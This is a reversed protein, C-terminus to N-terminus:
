KILSSKIIGYMSKSLREIAKENREISAKIQKQFREADATKAKIGAIMLKTGDKAKQIDVETIAIQPTTSKRVRAYKSSPINYYQRLLNAEAQSAAKLATQYLQWKVRDKSLESPTVNGSMVQEWISLVEPSLDTAYAGLNDNVANHIDSRIFNETLAKNDEAKQRAEYELQQALTDWINYKSSLYAQDLKSKNLNTVWLQARNFMATDHRNAANEKEQQWALEDYQRQVQNSQEMGANRAEQGKVEADLQTATQLSGDSTLPKSALSRLTAYNREGRMEADLDSRTYRHVQFPDKLYPTLSEKALDTIRRNMSDAYIARPLGYILTPNRLFNFNIKETPSTSPSQTSGDRPNIIEKQSTNQIVPKQPQQAVSNNLVAIDGNAKKYVQYQKGDSLTVTHIRSKQEEPTLQNFEKEYTDMRRLWTSSGMTDEVDSNITGPNFRNVIDQYMKDQYGINYANNSNDSRSAFMKRFLQNHGRVGQDGYTHEQNWFDRIKAADRNYNAVFQNIDTTMQSDDYYAQIDSGVINSNGIYSNNKNYAEQLNGAKYHGANSNTISPAAYQQGLSNNWGTLAQQSYLNSYWTPVNGGPALKRIKNLNLSGGQRFGYLKRFKDRSVAGFSKDYLIDVDKNVPMPFLQDYLSQLEKNKARQEGKQSKPIPKPAPKPTKPKEGFLREYMKQRASHAAGTTVPKYEPVGYLNFAKEVNRLASEEQARQGVRARASNIKEQIAKSAREINEQPRVIAPLNSSFTNRDVTPVARSLAVATRVKKSDIGEFSSNGTPVGLKAQRAKEGQTFTDDIKEIDSLKKKSIEARQRQFAADGKSIIEDRYTFPKQTIPVLAKIDQSQKQTYKSYPNRFNLHLSINGLNSTKTAEFIDADSLLQWKKKKGFTTDRLKSFDYYDAVKPNHDWIRSFKWRSKFYSPLTKDKYEPISQLIKNAEELNKANKIQELKDASIKIMKGTSDEILKEGTKTASKMAMNKLRIGTQNSLSTVATVGASLNRLDDVTLDNFKGDLIKKWSARSPESLANQAQLVGLIYPAFKILNKGIKAAKGATGLGPVLGILDMGLGVGANSLDKWQFGDEGIDAGLTALTSGIGSIGSVITGGVPVFSSIASTLDLAIAGLRAWDTASLGDSLKRQGAQKEEETRGFLQDAMRGSTNKDQQKRQRAAAVYENFSGGSQKKVIGGDKQSTIQKNRKNWEPYAMRQRLEENLLMSADRYQRTVPNYELFTWNDYNQSGPIVYYGDASGLETFLGTDYAFDLNNAIHQQTIDKSNKDVLRRSGTIYQVLTPFDIYQKIAERLAVPDSPDIGYQKVVMDRSTDKNYALPIVKGSIVNQFPHENQYTNFYKERENQNIVERLQADHKRQRIEKQAQEAQQELPSKQEQQQQSSGFFNNLFDSGIGAQNLYMIDKPNYGNSLSDAAKLLAQKYADLSKFTTSNSFDLSKLNDSNAYNRLQEALYNSRWSTGVTGDANTEEQAAYPTYDFDGGSPNNDHQWQAIFGNKSLDFASNTSTPAPTSKDAEYKQVADGVDKFYQAVMRNASFTNYNKQKRKKLQNYDSTTIRNGKDDYYYESGSSDIGDNDTNSFEGLNDTINGFSDTSFRGTNNQLQDQYAETLRNFADMFEQKQGENLNKSNLWSTVNTGLNHIYRKLDIEGTGYKYKIDAM